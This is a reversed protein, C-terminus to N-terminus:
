QHFAELFVWSIINQITAGSHAIIVKKVIQMLNPLYPNKDLKKNHTETPQANAPAPIDELM